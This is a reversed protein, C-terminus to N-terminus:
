RCRAFGNIEAFVRATSTAVNCRAALIGVVDIEAQRPFTSFSYEPDREASSLLNGLGAVKALPAPRMKKMTM